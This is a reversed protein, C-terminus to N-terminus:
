ADLCSFSFVNPIWTWITQVPIVLIANVVEAVRSISYREQSWFRSTMCHTFVVGIHLQLGLQVTLRVLALFIHTICISIMSLEIQHRQEALENIQAQMTNIARDIAQLKFSPKTPMELQLEPDLSLTMDILWCIAQLTPKLLLNHDIQLSSLVEEQTEVESAQSQHNIAMLSSSYFVDEDGIELSMGQEWVRDVPFGAERLQDWDDRRLRHLHQPTHYTVSLRTGHVMTVQHRTTRADLVVWADRSDHDLWTGEQDIQLVGGTWDGFSTTINRFLRHNQTDKHPLLSEGTTLHVVTICLYPFKEPMLTALKHCKALCIEHGVATTVNTVFKGSRESAVLSTHAGYTITRIGEGVNKRYTSRPILKSDNEYLNFLDNTLSLYQSKGKTAKVANVSPLVRAGDWYFFITLVEKPVKGMFSRTQEEPSLEHINEEAMVVGTRRDITRRVLVQDISIQPPPNVDYISMQKRNCVLSIEDETQRLSEPITFHTPDRAHNADVLRNKVRKLTNLIGQVLSTPYSSAQSTRKAGELKSHEHGGSCRVGLMSALAPSNTMWRTPKKVLVSHDTGQNSSEEPLHMGWRCMDGTVIEVGPHEALEKIMPLDWSSATAPHEHLFFKGRAIQDWYLDVAYQLLLVGEEYKKTWEPTGHHKQNINQMSSFVTCPPAGIIILPDNMAINHRTQTRYTEVRMDMQPDIRMDVVLGPTLDQACASFNGPNFLEVFDVQSRSDKAVSVAQISVVEGTLTLWIDNWSMGEVKNAFHFLDHGVRWFTSKSIFTLDEQETVPVNDGWSDTMLFQDKDLVLKWSVRYNAIRVVYSIPLLVLAEKVAVILHVRSHTYLRSVILGETKNEGVLTCMTKEGQMGTKWPIVLVNAGSDLMCYQEDSTKAKLSGLHVVASAIPQGEPRPNYEGFPGNPDGRRKANLEESATTIANLYAPTMRYLFRSLILGWRTWPCNRTIEIAEIPPQRVQITWHIRRRLRFEEVRANYREKCQMCCISSYTMMAHTHGCWHCRVWEAYRNHQMVSIRSTKFTRYMHRCPETKPVPCMDGTDSIPHRLELPERCDYFRDYEVEGEECDYFIAFDLSSVPGVPVHLMKVVPVGPTAPSSKPPPKSPPRLSPNSKARAELKAVDEPLAPKPKGGELEHLYMCKDGRTCGGSSAFYACQKPIKGPRSVGAKPSPTVPNNSSSSAPTSGMSPGSKPVSEGVKGQTLSPKTKSSGKKSEGGKGGSLPPPTPSRDGKKGKGKGKGGKPLAPGKGKSKGSGKVPTTEGSTIAKVTNEQRKKPNSFEKNLNVGHLKAVIRKFFLLTDEESIARADLNAERAMKLAFDFLEDHVVPQIIHFFARRMDSLSLMLGAVERHIQISVKWLELNQIVGSATTAQNYPRRIYNSLQAAQVDPTPFVSFYYETLMVGASPTACRNNAKRKIADSLQNGLWTCIHSELEPYFQSELTSGKYKTEIQEIAFKKKNLRALTSHVGNLLLKGYISCALNLGRLVQLFQEEWRRISDLVQVIPGEGKPLAGASKLVELVNHQKLIVDRGNLDAPTPDNRKYYQYIQKWHQHSRRSSGDLLWQNLPTEDDLIEQDFDHPPKPKGSPLTDSSDQYTPDIPLIRNLYIVGDDEEMVVDKYRPTTPPTQFVETERLAEVHQTSHMNTPINNLHMRGNEDITWQDEPGITRVSTGIPFETPSPDDIFISGRGVVKSVFWRDIVVYKGIAFLHADRVFVRKSGKVLPLELSSLIITTGSGAMSPSRNLGPPPDYPLGQDEHVPLDPLDEQLTTEQQEEQVEDHQQDDNWSDVTQRLTMLEQQIDQVSQDLQYSHAAQTNVVKIVDDLRNIAHSVRM